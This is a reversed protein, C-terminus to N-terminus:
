MMGSMLVVCVARTGAPPGSLLAPASDPGAEGGLWNGNEDRARERGLFHAGMGASGGPRVACLHGGARGRSSESRPWSGPLGAPRGPPPPPGSVAARPGAAPAAARTEAADGLGGAVCGRGSVQAASLSRLGNVHDEGRGGGARSLRSWHSRPPGPLRHAKRSRRLPPAPHGRGPPRIGGQRPRRGGPPAARAAAKHAGPSGETRATFRRAGPRCLVRLESTAEGRSGRGAPPRTEVAEPERRGRRRERPLGRGAPEAGSLHRLQLSVGGGRSSAAVRASAGAGGAGASLSSPAPRVRLTAPGAARDVPGEPATPPSWQHRPRPRPQLPHPWRTPQANSYCRADQGAHGHLTHSPIRPQLLQTHTNSSQASKHPLPNPRPFSSLIHAATEAKCFTAAAVASLCKGNGWFWPFRGRSLARKGKQHRSFWQNPVLSDLTTAVLDCM